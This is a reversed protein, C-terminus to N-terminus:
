MKTFVTIIKIILLYQVQFHTYSNTDIPMLFLNYTNKKSQYKFILSMALAKFCFPKSRLEKFLRKPLWYYINAKEYNDKKNLEIIALSLFLISLYTNIPWKGFSRFLNLPLKM